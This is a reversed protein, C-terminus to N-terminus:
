KEEVVRDIKLSFPALGDALKTVALIMPRMQMLHDDPHHQITIAVRNAAFHPRPVRSIDLAQYRENFPDPITKLSALRSDDGVPAHDTVLGHGIQIFLM